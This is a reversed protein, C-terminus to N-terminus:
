KRLVNAYYTSHMHTHHDGISYCDTISLKELSENIGQLFTRLGSRQRAFRDNNQLKSWHWADHQVNMIVNNINTLSSM